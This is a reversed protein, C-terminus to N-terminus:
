WWQEDGKGTKTEREEGWIECYHYISYNYERLTTSVSNAAVCCYNQSM